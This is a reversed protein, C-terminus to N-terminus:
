IAGRRRQTPRATDTSDVRGDIVEMDEGCWLCYRDVRPLDRKTATVWGEGRAVAERFQGDEQLRDIACAAHCPWRVTEDLRALARGWPRVPLSAPLTMMTLTDVPERAAM